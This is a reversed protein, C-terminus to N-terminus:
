NSSLDPDPDLLEMVLASGSFGSAGLGDGTYPDYSERLGERAVVAAIRQAMESAADEYGLRSVGLWLLWAAGIRTPTLRYRWLGLPRDHRPISAAESPPPVPLWFTRPDFLHEEVLRRGVDAPLDPLALSSLTTWSVGPRQDVRERGRRRVLQHFTGRREDYLRDLLSPTVSPQGLALRSLGHAVNVETTCVRAGGAVPVARDSWLLGGPDSARESEIRAHHEVLAPEAAPDDVAIRWAWALLPPESRATAGFLTELEARARPRDFRRWAIAALCSDVYRQRSASRASPATYCHRRGAVTGERWNGALTDRCLRRILESHSRLEFRPDASARAAPVDPADALHSFTM